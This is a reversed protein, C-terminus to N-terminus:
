LRPGILGVGAVRDIGIPPANTARAAPTQETTTTFEEFPGVRMEVLGAPESARMQSAVRVDRLTQQHMRRRAVEPQEHPVQDSDARRATKLAASRRNERDDDNDPPQDCHRRRVYGGHSRPM